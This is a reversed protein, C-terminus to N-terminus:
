VSLYYRRFRPCGADDCANGGGGRAGVITRNPLQMGAATVSNDSVVSAPQVVSIGAYGTFDVTCGTVHGNPESIWIGRSTANSVLVDAVRSARGLRIGNGGIGVVSGNSVSARQAAPSGTYGIGVPNGGVPACAGPACVAPGRVAFGNLDIRIDNARLLIGSTGAPLDLDSTLLYSGPATIEVPFGPADGAFCGIEACAASIERRGDAAFAAPAAAVGFLAALAGACMQWMPWTTGM